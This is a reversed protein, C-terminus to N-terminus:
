AALRAVSRFPSRRHRPRIRGVTPPQSRDNGPRQASQHEREQDCRLQGARSCTERAVRERPVDLGTPPTGIDATLVGKGAITAPVADFAFGAHHRDSRAGRRISCRQALNTGSIDVKAEPELHGPLGDRATNVNRCNYALDVTPVLVGSPDREQRSVEDDLDIAHDAADPAWQGPCAREPDRWRWVAEIV